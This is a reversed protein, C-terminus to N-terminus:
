RFAMLTDNGVNHIVKPQRHGAVFCDAQCGPQRDIRVSYHKGETNLVQPHTHPKKGKGQNQHTNRTAQTPHELRAERRERVPSAVNQGRPGFM